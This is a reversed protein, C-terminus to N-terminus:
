ANHRDFGISVHTTEDVGNIQNKSCVVSFKSKIQGGGSNSKTEILSDLLKQDSGPGLVDYM